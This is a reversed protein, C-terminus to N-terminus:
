VVGDPDQELAPILCTCVASYLLWIFTDSDHQRGGIIGPAQIDDADEKEAKRRWVFPEDGFLERRGM